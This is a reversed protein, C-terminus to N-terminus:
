VVERRLTQSIVGADYLKKGTEYANQSLSKCKQPSAILKLCQEAFHDPSDAILIEKEPTFALGEAGVTTSVVARHAAASELIKIRTGGGHHIPAITFTANQYYLQVSDVSGTVNVNNIEALAKVRNTPKYGVLWVEISKDTQRTIKPLVERCFWESGHANPAYYMSGVFLINIVDTASAADYNESIRSFDFSNPITIFQKTQYLANMDATDKESCLFVKHFFDLTREELKRLKRAQLKLALSMQYGLSNKNVDVNRQLAKSEIDDWDLCSSEASFGMETIAKYLWYNQLRFVLVNFKGLKSMMPRLYRDTEEMHLLAPYCPSFIEHLIERGPVRQFLYNERKKPVKIFTFSSIETLSEVSAPPREQGPRGILILHVKCSSTLASLHSYCRKELGSGNDLPPNSSIFLVEKM